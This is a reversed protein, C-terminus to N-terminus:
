EAANLSKVKLWNHECKKKWKNNYKSIEWWKLINLRKRNKLKM